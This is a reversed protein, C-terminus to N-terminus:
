LVNKKLLVRYKYYEIYCIIKHGYLDDVAMYKLFYAKQLGALWFYNSNETVAGGAPSDKSWLKTFTFPSTTLVPIEM